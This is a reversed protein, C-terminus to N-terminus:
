STIATAKAHVGCNNNILNGAFYMKAVMADNQIPEQFDTLLFDARPSTALWLYDENLWYFHHGSGSGTPGDTPCNPDVAIPVGNFLLNTFGAQFLQEDRGEPGVPHTQSAQGIAWYRNYNAQTTIGITPHRGGKSCAGFLHQMLSLTLTTSTGDYVSRWWPNASRALGGYTPAATGDDVASPLGDMGKPDTTNWVAGGLLRAMEMEGQAFYLRIFDAIAEPSDVKILTLGDVAIATYYQKWDWAANKVTDSPAITLEEFGSYTGGVSFFDYMLPVEIQTGGRVIKKNMKNLRFFLLIADYINDVVDPLIYRRAISTVVNAGLPTAM